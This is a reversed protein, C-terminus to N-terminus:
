TFRIKFQRYFAQIEEKNLHSKKLMPRIAQHTLTVAIFAVFGM